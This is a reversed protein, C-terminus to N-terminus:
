SATDETCSGEPPYRRNGRTSANAMPLNALLLKARVLADAEALLRLKLDIALPLHFAIVDTLSALPIKRQFFGDVLNQASPLTELIRCAM